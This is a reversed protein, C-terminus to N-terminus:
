NERVIRLYAKWPGVSDKYQHAMFRAIQSLHDLDHVAWTSLLQSLTVTGFEPHLATRELDTDTLTLARLQRINESRLEAFSQLLEPLTSGFHVDPHATRNLPTFRRDEADSLILQVRPLWNTCECHILHLIM